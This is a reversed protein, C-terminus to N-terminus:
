GDGGTVENQTSRFLNAGQDCNGGEPGLRIEFGLGPVNTTEKLSGVDITVFSEVEQCRPVKQSCTILEMLHLVALTKPGTPHLEGASKRSDSKEILVEGRGDISEWDM